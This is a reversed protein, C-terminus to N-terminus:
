LKTGEMNGFKEIIKYDVLYEDNISSIGGM